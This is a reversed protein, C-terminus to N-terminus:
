FPLIFKPDDNNLAKEHLNKIQIGYHNAIRMAQGTGGSAKGDITWCIVFESPTKLDMGLVQHVNRAHFRKFEPTLHDWWPHFRAAIDFAEPIPLLTSTSGNFKLHPLFIEKHSPDVVGQEFAIDAGDAGGSRLIYGKAELGRAMITMRKCIDVPTKRTGIGAYYKM